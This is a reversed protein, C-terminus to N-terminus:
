PQPGGAGAYERDMVGQKRLTQISQIAAWCCYRVFREQSKVNVRWGYPSDSKRTHSAFERLDHQVAPDTAHFTRQVQLPLQDSPMASPSRPVVDTASRSAEVPDLSSHVVSRPAAYWQLTLGVTPPDYPQYETLAMVIAADADFERALELADDPSEIRSKGMEALAAMVRNLPIVNVNGALTMESALLDSVKLPDWDRSNSLNIVPCVVVTTPPLAVRAPDVRDQSACGATCFGVVAVLFAWARVRQRSGTMGVSVPDSSRIEQQPAPNCVIRPAGIGDPLTQTQKKKRSTRNNWM